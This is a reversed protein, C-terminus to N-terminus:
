NRPYVTVSYTDEDAGGTTALTFSVEVGGLSNTTATFSKVTVFPGDSLEASSFDPDASFTFTQTGFGSIDAMSANRIRHELIRMSVMANRQMQISESTSRWSKWGYVLLSGVTLAMIAMALMGVMLEMLTFGATNKRKM